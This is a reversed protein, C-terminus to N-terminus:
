WELEEIGCAEEQGCLCDKQELGSVRWLLLFLACIDVGHQIYGTYQGEQGRQDDDFIVLDRM